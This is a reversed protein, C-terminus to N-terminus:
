GLKKVLEGVLAVYRSKAEAPAVGKRSTWADFKARGKPDLLGPRSGKVDGETGQKYLGYLDLLEANSPRKSLKKVREQAETFSDKDAM